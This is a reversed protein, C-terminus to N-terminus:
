ILSFKANAIVRGLRNDFPEENDFQNLVNLYFCNDVWDVFENFENFLGISIKYKGPKINVFYDISIRDKLDSIIFLEQSDKQFISLLDFGNEDYIIIFFHAKRFGTVKQIDLIVEISIKQNIKADGEFEKRNIFVKSIKILGNGDLHEFSAKLKENTLYDSVVRKIDGSDILLGNHLAIGKTCLMNIAAM